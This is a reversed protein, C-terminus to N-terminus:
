HMTAARVTDRNLGRGIAWATSSNCSPCIQLGTAEFISECDLCLLARDMPITPRVHVDMEPDILRKFIQSASTMAM